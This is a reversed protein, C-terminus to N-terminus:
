WYFLNDANYKLHQKLLREEPLNTIPNIIKNRNWFWDWIYKIIKQLNEINFRINVNQWEYVIEWFIINWSEWIKNIKFAWNYLTTKKDLM